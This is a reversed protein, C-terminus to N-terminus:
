CSRSSREWLGGRRGFRLALLAVPVMEDADVANSLTQRFAFTGIFLATALLVTM